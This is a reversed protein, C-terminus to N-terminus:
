RIKQFIRGWRVKSCFFRVFVTRECSLWIGFVRGMLHGVPLPGWSRSDYSNDRNDGIVFVHDKPVRYVHSGQFESPEEYIVRFEHHETKELFFKFDSYRAQLDTESLSYYSPFNEPSIIFQRELKKDNVWIQGSSDIYIEDGPLGIVRKTMIKRENIARFIVVDGRRPLHRQWFLKTTFPIRVGYAFKDAIIFDNILLSPIMSGSPVVFPEFFLWRVSLILLIIGLFSSSAKLLEMFLNKQSETEPPM